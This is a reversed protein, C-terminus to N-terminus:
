PLKNTCHQFTERSSESLDCDALRLTNDETVTIFIVMKDKMKFSVDVPMIFKLYYFIVILIVSKNNFFSELVIGPCLKSKEPCKFRVFVCCFTM